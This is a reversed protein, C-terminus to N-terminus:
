SDKLRKRALDIANQYDTGRQEMFAHIFMPQHENMVFLIRLNGLGSVHNFRLSYFQFDDYVGLREFWERHTNLLAPNQSLANLRKKTQAKILVQRNREPFLSELEAQCTPHIKPGTLPKIDPMRFDIYQVFKCM